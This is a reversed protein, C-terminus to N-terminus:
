GELGQNSVYLGFVGSASFGEVELVRLRLVRIPACAGLGELGLVRPARLVYLWISRLGRNKRISSAKAIKSKHQVTSKQQARGPRESNRGNRELRRPGVKPEPM